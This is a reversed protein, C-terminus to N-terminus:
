ENYGGANFQYLTKLKYIFNNAKFIDIKAGCLKMILLTVKSFGRPRRDFFYYKTEFSFPLAQECAKRVIEVANEDKYGKRSDKYRHAV